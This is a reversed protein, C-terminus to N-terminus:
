QLPPIEHGVGAEMIEVAGKLGKISPEDLEVFIKMELTSFAGIFSEFGGKVGDAVL